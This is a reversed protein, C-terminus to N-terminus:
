NTPAVPLGTVAGRDDRSRRDGIAATSLSPERRGSAPRASFVIPHLCFVALFPADDISSPLIEGAGTTRHITV